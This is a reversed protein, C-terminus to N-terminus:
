DEGHDSRLTPRADTRPGNTTEKQASRQEKLVRIRGEAVMLAVDDGWEGKAANWAWCVVMTNDPTYGRAPDIRDLSPSFPSRGRGTAFVLPLGTAECVGKDLREVAWDQTLCFALGRKDARRKAYNLLATARGAAKRRHKATYAACLPLNSQRWASAQRRVKDPNAAYWARNQARKKERNRAYWAAHYARAKDRNAARWRRRYERQAEKSPSTTTVEASQPKVSTM